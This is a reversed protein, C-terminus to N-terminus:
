LLAPVARVGTYVAVGVLLVAFARTLRRPEVRAGVRGGLLSGAVAIATFVAVVPVDVHVGASSRAALATASNVAIVLLSTGVAAPMPFSLALVLAPVLAFGGGVGFFGTLLGVVTATVVLKAVRPCACAVPRLRLMPEPGGEGGLGGAGRGGAGPKRLSRRLMLAAVLLLLAAFAALLLAPAMHVAVASGAVSGATGLAGFGLGQGVRVNGRRAHPVLAFLSTAGVILLSSTTAEHPDQGLLHVLVPVTLISGGGGLAGLSLGILLGAALVLPTV